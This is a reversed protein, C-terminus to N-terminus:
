WVGMLFSDNTRQSVEDVIGFIAAIKDTEKTLSRRSYAQVILLWARFFKECFEPTTLNLLGAIGKKFIRIYDGDKMFAEDSMASLGEPASESCESTLCEWYVGERKFNIVRTSLLQEQLVWGRADLPGRPRFIDDYKMEPIVIHVIDRRLFTAPSPDLEFKCPRNQLGNRASFLGSNDDETDVAAIIVFANRYIAAMRSAERSWDEPDDQVICLSDIWLFQLGLEKCVQMADIFTQSIESESIEDQRALLTDHTTTLPKTSGWRHSLAVYRGRQDPQTIVLHPETSDPLNGVDIIRTPLLPKEETCIRCQPHNEVCENLWGSILTFSARSGTGSDEFESCAELM